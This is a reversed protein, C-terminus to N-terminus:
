IKSHCFHFIASIHHHSMYVGYSYLVNKYWKMEGIYLLIDGKQCNIEIKTKKRIQIMQREGLWACLTIGNMNQLEEEITIELFHGLVSNKACYNKFMAM